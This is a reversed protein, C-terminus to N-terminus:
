EEHNIGKLLQRRLRENEAKTEEYDVLQVVLNSVEETEWKVIDMRVIPTSVNIDKCLFETAVQSKITPPIDKNRHLENLVDIHNM